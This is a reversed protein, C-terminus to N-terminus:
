ATLGRKVFLERIEREKEKGMRTRVQLIRNEMEPQTLRTRTLHRCTAGRLLFSKTLWNQAISKRIDWFMGGWAEGIDYMAAHDTEKISAASLLSKGNELDIM